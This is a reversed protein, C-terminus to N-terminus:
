WGHSMNPKRYVLDESLHALEFATSLNILSETHGLLLYGNPTLRDYFVSITKLKSAKDFYILVNRCFIVDVHGILRMQDQDLLNLQGFNCLARVEDNVKMGEDTETFFREVLDRRTARFSSKGFVGRRAKKLVQRNVDNGFVRVNWGDFLGSEIVIMAVTYSEEGSSCGASWIMLRRRPQLREHLEPLIDAAFSRLQYDERFFYTENTTLIDVVEQMEQSSEPYYKLFHYYEEFSSLGLHSIRESLRSELLFKNEESFFIGFRDNVMKRLRIFCENSLPYEPDGLRL